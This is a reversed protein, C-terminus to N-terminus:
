IKCAIEEYTHWFSRLYIANFIKSSQLNLVKFSIGRFKNNVACLKQMQINNFAVSQHLKRKLLHEKKKKLLSTMRLKADSSIGCFFVNCAILSFVFAM